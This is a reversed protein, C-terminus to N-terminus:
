RAHKNMYEIMKELGYRYVVYEDEAFKDSDPDTILITHGVNGDVKPTEYHEDHYECGALLLMAALHQYTVCYPVTFWDPYDPDEEELAALIKDLTMACNRVSIRSPLM